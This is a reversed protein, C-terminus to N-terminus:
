LTGGGRGRGGRGGCGGVWESYYGDEELRPDLPSEGGIRLGVGMEETKQGRREKSEREVSDM